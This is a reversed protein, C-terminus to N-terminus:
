PKREFRVQYDTNYRDITYHLAEPSSQYIDELLSTAEDYELYLGQRNRLSMINACLLLPRLLCYGGVGALLRYAPSVFPLFEDRGVGGGHRDSYADSAYKFFKSDLVSAMVNEPYKRSMEAGYAEVLDMMRQGAPTLCWTRSATRRALGVDVLWEMRPITTQERRSGSGQKEINQDIERHIRQATSELKELQDRDTRTYAAGAFRSVITAIVDPLTCGADLYDFSGEGYGDVLAQCFSLLFDGDAALLNYLFFIQEGCELVLPNTASPSQLAEHQEASMLGRSLVLGMDAPEYSDTVLALRQPLFEVYEKFGLRSLWGTQSPHNYVYLKQLSVSLGPNTQGSEHLGQLWAALAADYTIDYKREELRTRLVDAMQGATRAMDSFALVAKCFGLRQMSLRSRSIWRVSM